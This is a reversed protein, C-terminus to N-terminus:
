KSKRKRNGIAFRSNKLENSNIFDVLSQHPIRGLPNISLKGSTIAADINEYRTHVLKAAQRRSYSKLENPTQVKDM